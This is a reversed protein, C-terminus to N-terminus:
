PFTTFRLTPTLLCVVQDPATAGNVVDVRVQLTTDGGPKTHDLQPTIKGLNWASAGFTMTTQTEATPNTDWDGTGVRWKPTFKLSGSNTASTLGELVLWMLNHTTSYLQSAPLRFAMDFTVTTALSATVCLGAINFAASGGTTQLKGFFLKDEDGPDITIYLPEKNIFSAGKTLVDQVTAEKLVSDTADEFYLKDADWDITTSASQTISGSLTLNGDSDVSAVEVAGSDKISVKNAGAADGLENIIDGTSHLDIAGTIEKGNVDLAGGLQPTTDDVVDQLATDLLAGDAAVDRGDVTGSVTINGTVDTAGVINTPANINVEGSGKPTIDLDVNADGGGSGSVTAITPASGSDQNLLAIYNNPASTALEVLALMPTSNNAGVWPDPTVFPAQITCTSGITAGSVVDSDDVTIGTAETGRGTGDSRILVHNTGFASAATVINADGAVAWKVGLTEGSDPVLVYNNTGAALLAFDGSGNSVILEGASASATGGGPDILKVFSIQDINYVLRQLALRVEEFSTVNTRVPVLTSLTM